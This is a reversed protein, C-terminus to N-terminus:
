MKFQIYYRKINTIKCILKQITESNPRNDSMFVHINM